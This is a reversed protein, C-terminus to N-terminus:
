RDTNFQYILQLIFSILAFGFHILYTLDSGSPEFHGFM